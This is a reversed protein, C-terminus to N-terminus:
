GGASANIVKFDNLTQALPWSVVDADAAEPPPCGAAPLRVKSRVRM